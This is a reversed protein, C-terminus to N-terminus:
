TIPWDRMAPRAKASAIAEAILYSHRRWMRCTTQFDSEPQHGQKPLNLCDNFQDRVSGANPGQRQRGFTRQPIPKTTFHWTRIDKTLRPPLPYTQFKGAWLFPTSSDFSVRFASGSSQQIGRQIATLAVAWILRSVGLIHLWQKRGGLMGDDRLILIRKLTPVVSGWNVKTGSACGEFDFDRVKRYWYDEEEEDNGHIVNLFKCKGVLGRRDSIYRLNEVTLDTLLEVSCHHFPLGQVKGTKGV